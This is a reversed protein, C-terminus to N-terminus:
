QQGDREQKHRIISRKVVRIIWPLYFMSGLGAVLVLVLWFDNLKDMFSYIHDECFLGIIGVIILSEGIIGNGVGYKWFDEMTVKKPVPKYEFYYIILGAILIGSDFLIEM